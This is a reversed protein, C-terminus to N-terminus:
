LEQRKYIRLSVSLSVAWAVVVILVIILADIWTHSMVWPVFSPPLKLIVASVLMGVLFVGFFCGFFVFSMLPQSTFRYLLLLLLANILLSLALFCFIIKVITSLYSDDGWRHSFTIHVVICLCYDIVILVCALFVFLYRGEVQAKKSIPIVGDFRRVEGSATVSALAYPVMVSMSFLLGMVGGDLGGALPSSVNPIIVMVVMPMLFILLGWWLGSRKGGANTLRLWDISLAKRTQVMMM